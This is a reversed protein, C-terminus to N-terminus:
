VDFNKNFKIGNENIWASDMGYSSCDFDVM